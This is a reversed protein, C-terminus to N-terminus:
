RGSRKGILRSPIVAGCGHLVGPDRESVMGGSHGVAVEQVALVTVCPRGVIPHQLLVLTSVHVNTSTHSPLQHELSRGSTLCMELEKCLTAASASGCVAVPRGGHQLIAAPLCVVSFALLGGLLLGNLLAAEVNKLRIPHIFLNHNDSHHSPILPLARPPPTADWGGARSLLLLITRVNGPTGPLTTTTCDVMPHGWCGSTLWHVINFM